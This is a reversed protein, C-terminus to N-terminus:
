LIYILLYIYIYILYKTKNIIYDMYKNWKMNFDFILGLYKYHTVRKINQKHIIISDTADTADMTGTMDMTDPTYELIKRM